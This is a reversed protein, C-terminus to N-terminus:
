AKGGLLERMLANEMKLKAVSETEQRQYVDRRAVKMRLESNEDKLKDIKDRLFDLETKHHKSQADLADVDDALLAAAIGPGWELPIWIVAECSKQTTERSFNGQHYFSEIQYGKLIDDTSGKSTTITISKQSNRQTQVQSFVTKFTKDDTM